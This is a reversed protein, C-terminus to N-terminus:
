RFNNMIKNDSILLEEVRTTWMISRDKIFVNKQTQKLYSFHCLNLLYDKIAFSYHVDIFPLSRISITGDTVKEAFFHYVDRFTFACKIPLLDIYILIWGQWVYVPSEILYTSNLPLFALSPLYSLPLQRTQYLFHNFSAADKSKYGITKMRFRRIKNIWAPMIRAKHNYQTFLEHFSISHTPYTQHNGIISRTSFPIITHLIIFAKLDPSYAIIAPPESLKTMRAFLWQFSSLQFSYSGTRKLTKAGVIWFNIINQEKYKISRKLLISPEIVSCQYEIVSRKEGKKFLIDPRQKIRSLYPELQVDDISSQTQLWEYLELKGRMHYESEAESKLLCSTSKKHAFHAKIVSGIKLEVQNSCVPCYFNVQQRIKELREKSWKNEAVNIMSGNNDYAVFM